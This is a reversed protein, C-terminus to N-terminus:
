PLHLCPVELILRCIMWGGRRRRRSSTLSTAFSSSSIRRRPQPWQSPPCFARMAFRLPGLTHGPVKDIHTSEGLGVYVGCHAANMYRLIRLRCRNLWHLPTIMSLPDLPFLQRFTALRGREDWLQALGPDAFAASTPTPRTSTGAGEIHDGRRIHSGGYHYCPRLEHEVPQLGTPCASIM